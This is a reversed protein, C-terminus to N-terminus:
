AGLGIMQPPVDIERTALVQLLDSLITNAKVARSDLKTEAMTARLRATDESEAFYTEACEKAMKAAVKRVKNSAGLGLALRKKEKAIKLNTTIWSLIDESTYNAIFTEIHVNTHTIPIGAFM